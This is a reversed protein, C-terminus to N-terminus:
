LYVGTQPSSGGSAGPGLGPHGAQAQVQQLQQQAAMKQAFLTAQIGHFLGELWGVLQAQALRLESETPVADDEFPKALEALEEQLDVSIADSLQGLATDYIERMRRRGPEDLEASRVEELLLRIMSGIRMVKGPESVPPEPAQATPQDATSESVTAQTDVIEPATQHQDAQPKTADASDTM